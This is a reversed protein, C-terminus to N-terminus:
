FFGGLRQLSSLGVEPHGQGVLREQKVCVLAIHKVTQLGPELDKLLLQSEPWLCYEDQNRDEVHEVLPHFDSVLATVERNIDEVSCVLPQDFVGSDLPSESPLGVSM